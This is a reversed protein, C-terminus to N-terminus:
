KEKWRLVHYDENISMWSKRGTKTKVWFSISKGHNTEVEYQGLKTPQRKDSDIWEM